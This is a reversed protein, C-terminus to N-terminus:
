RGASATLSADDAGGFESPDIQEDREDEEERMKQWRAHLEPITITDAVTGGCSPCKKASALILRLCAGESCTYFPRCWRWWGFATGATLGVVVSVVGVPLVSVGVLGAVAFLGLFAGPVIGYWSRQRVRAVDRGLNFKPNEHHAEEAVVRARAPRSLPRPPREEDLGLMERLEDEHPDLIAKWQEVWERQPGHLTKLADQVEDRLLDQIAVLMTIDAIDLGGASAIQHESHVERGVLRSAHRRYMAANAAVVGLGLFVAAVSGDREDAASRATRFPEDPALELFIQGVNHALKGAVDDNGIYAVEFTAVGAECSAIEISSTRLMSTDDDRIPRTDVVAIEPDIHAHWCLRYLLQHVTHLKPEWPDPFHKTDARVLPAELLREAGFRRIMSALAVVLERQPRTLPWAVEKDDDTM